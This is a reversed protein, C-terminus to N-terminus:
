RAGLKQRLSRFKKIYESQDLKEPTIREVPLNHGMNWKYAAKEEDGGARQLVRNALDTALREELDPRAHLVAKIFDPDEKYLKKYDEDLKGESLKKRNIIEQITNPMLGYSGFASQGKHIGSEMEKHSTDMGGSSEIMKINELFQKLKDDM